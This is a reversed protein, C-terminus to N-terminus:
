LLTIALMTLDDFQPADGVFTNVTEHVNTLLQQPMADPKQNLIELLRETGFLEENANTAEPVGDTYVFLTSGKQMTFEYEKYKKGKIGGIVFGHKDKFLEFEGNPQRLIPYEHGANAAIVKGTSIELIGIWVTVFMKLQNNKCITENTRELIEHPSLGMMAYNNILIKSAMMFLAAPVGKGSVDAMVMVLHNNDIFFFDYFDGGVEKAPTMSAYIDFEPRDPFAPFISPLQSEQISKAMDLEASIREKEATVTRINKIHNEIEQIMSSFDEALEEIENECSIHSLEQITEEANKTEKYQNISDQEKRLPKIVIKKLLRLFVVGLIVFLLGTIVAVLCSIRLTGSLLDKWQMSVGVIMALEDDVYVPEFVHVVSRDAGKQMSLEMSPSPQGTKLIEDLIPYWGKQYPNTCGLEYLYEGGSSIRLENEKAGTVLFFMENDRVVFSYLYLPQYTRKNRDFTQSLQFYCIEALLKQGDADLNEADQSTIYEIETLEPLKKRLANEKQIFKETDDYFFEMEEFHEQWYPILFGLSQYSELIAATNQGVKNGSEFRDNIYHHMNYMFLSVASLLIFIIEFIAIPRNIQKVINNKPNQM